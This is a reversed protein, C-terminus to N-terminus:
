LGGGLGFIGAHRILYVTLIGTGMFVLTAVLSRKSGRAVGCVGHGSTCGSGLQTGFGVLLGAFVLYAPSASVEFEPISVVRGSLAAGLLIGVLFCLRWGFDSDPRSYCKGLIGSIGAVRGNLIWLLLAASGILLGGLM